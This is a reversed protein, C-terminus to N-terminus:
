VDMLLNEVFHRGKRSEVKGVISNLCEVQIEKAGADMLELHQIQGMIHDPLADMFQFLDM